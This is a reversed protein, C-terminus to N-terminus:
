GYNSLIIVTYGNNLYMSLNSSIGRFGGSHGVSNNVHDIAFGYGYDPANLEPKPTLLLETYNKSVLKNSRLAIDFKLLDGVTSYGGGAPGGKMVHEFLNNKFYMGQNNFVKDYGVALNPNVLDLEHANTNEMGAVRYITENVIDFYSKGTVKEIVKGLVL